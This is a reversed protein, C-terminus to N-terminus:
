RFIFLWNHCWWKSLFAIETLNGQSKAYFSIREEKYIKHSEVSFDELGQSEM